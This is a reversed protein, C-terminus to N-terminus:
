SLLDKVLSPIEYIRNAVKVGAVSLAEVKSKASGEGREIIAGAHGMRKGPPVSAGAIYAVVPKSMKTSIFKAADEEQTGGVEGVLVVVKTKKDQNFLKLIDVLNTGAVMDAGMGVVTSQGIGVKCLNAAVEYALTGSRSIIGVSGSCFMNAPLIGIKCEGPTIIGPTTPGILLVKKQSVYAKMEMVDHVPIHETILVILNIGSNVAEIVSDKAVTAPVFLVSVDISFNDVVEEVTDFVPINEVREGGKGPTVGAVIKTGETLMLKTQTTGINGTIGQVLVQTNRNILISM